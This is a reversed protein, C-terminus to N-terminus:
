PERGGSEYKRIFQITRERSLNKLKRELQLAENRTEKTTSWVIKWPVGKSTAKEYGSNHRRLRDEIDSTQGKYFSDISSSYLIYVTYSM